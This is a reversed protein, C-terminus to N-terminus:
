NEEENNQNGRSISTRWRSYGAVGQVIYTKDKAFDERSVKDEQSRWWAVASTTNGSVCDKMSGTEQKYKLTVAIENQHCLGCGIKLDTLFWESDPYSVLFLYRRPNIKVNSDSQPLGLFIPSPWCIMMFLHPEMSSLHGLASPHERSKWFNARLM